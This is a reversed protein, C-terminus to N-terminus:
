HWIITQRRDKKGGPTRLYFLCFLYIGRMNHNHLCLYVLEYGTAIQQIPVILPQIMNPGVVDMDCLTQYRICNSDIAFVHYADSMEWVDLFIANDLKKQIQLISPRKAGHFYHHLVNDSWIDRRLEDLEEVLNEEGLSVRELLEQYLSLKKRESPRNKKQLMIDFSVNKFVAMHEFITGADFDIELSTANECWRLLEGLVENVDRFYNARNEMSDIYFAETARHRMAELYDLFHSLSDQYM